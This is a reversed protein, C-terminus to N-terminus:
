LTSSSSCVAHNVVSDPVRHEPLESKTQLVSVFFGECVKRSASRMIAGGFEGSRVVTANLARCVETCAILSESGLFGLVLGLEVESIGVLSAGGKVYNNHPVPNM